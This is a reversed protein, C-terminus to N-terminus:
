KENINLFNIAKIHVPYYISCIDNRIALILFNNQIMQSEFNFHVDRCNTHVEKRSESWRGNNGISRENNGRRLPQVAHTVSPMRTACRKWGYLPRIRGAVRITVTQNMNLFSILRRYRWDVGIRELVELLKDWRYISHKRLTLLVFIDQNHKMSREALVRMVAIAERTEKGKQFGFQDESIYPEAKAEL